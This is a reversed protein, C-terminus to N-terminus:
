NYIMFYLNHSTVRIYPDLSNITAIAAIDLFLTLLNIMTKYLVIENWMKEAHINWVYNFINGPIM